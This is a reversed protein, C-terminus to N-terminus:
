QLSIHKKRKIIHLVKGDVKVLAAIFCTSVLSKKVRFTLWLHWIFIVPDSSWFFLIKSVLLTWTWTVNWAILSVLVLQTCFTQSHLLCRFTLCFIIWYPIVKQGQIESKNDMLFIEVFQWQKKSYILLKTEGFLYLKSWFKNSNFMIEYIDFWSSFCFVFLHRVVSIVFCNLWLFLAKFGKNDWFFNIGKLYIM